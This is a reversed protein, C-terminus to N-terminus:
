PLLRRYVDLLVREDHEWSLDPVARRVAATLDGYTAVAAEVAAALGAVDGPPYVTGLAHRRVVAALEGVDTAVVPVGLSVAHFLKNPLALRHNPWRDSHTVLALGAGVLREDVRHLPEAPHVVARGPDFGALWSKDGPGVLTVPLHLRSSARAVVELERYAGLRGAYVLGRPSAAPPPLDRRPFSNRVVHVHPWGYTDRLAAAVGEGVTLVAAARGGLSRELRRAARHRLPAPRGERPRGTWLEHSDYVLPVGLHEAAAVGVPLASFDHAHVVDAPCRRAEELAAQQWQGLRRAVHDPLLLWRVAREATTLRRRRDQALPPRGISTVRIGPPPEFGAPVARGIIHVDHGAGVLATAERLVRTDEAVGTWVLM